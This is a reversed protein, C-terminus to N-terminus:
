GENSVAVYSSCRTKIGLCTMQGVVHRGMRRNKEPLPKSKSFPGYAAWIINDPRSRGARSFQLESLPVSFFRPSSIM